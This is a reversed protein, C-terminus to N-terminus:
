PDVQSIACFTQLESYVLLVKKPTEMCAPPIRVARSGLAVKQQPFYITAVCAHSQTKSRITVALWRTQLM